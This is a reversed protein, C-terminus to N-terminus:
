SVGVLVHAGETVAGDESIIQVLGDGSGVIQVPTRRTRDSEVLTVASEGNPSSHVASLPVLLGAEPAGTDERPTVIIQVRTSVTEPALPESPALVMRVMPDATEEGESSPEIRDISANLRGSIGAGTIEIRSDPDVLSAEAHTLLLLISPPATTISLVPDASVADGLNANVSTVRGAAGHPAFALESVRAAVTAPPPEPTPSAPPAAQPTVPPAPTRALEASPLTTMPAAYGLALYLEQIALETSPGFSGAEDFISYGMQELATQLRAVDAGSDGSTLDRFMPVEGPLLIVPRDSDEFLVSGPGVSAGVAIPERTIIGAGLGEFGADGTVEISNGTIITGPFLVSQTISGVTVESTLQTKEPPATEALLQQPSRILTAAAVGLGFSLLLSGGICIALVATPSFKRRLRGM